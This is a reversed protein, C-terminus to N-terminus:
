INNNNFDEKLKELIRTTAKTYKEEIRKHLSAMRGHGKYSYHTYKNTPSM